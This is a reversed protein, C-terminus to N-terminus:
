NLKWNNNNNTTTANNANNHAPHLLNASWTKWQGFVLHYDERLIPDKEGPDATKISLELNVDGVCGALFQKEGVRTM